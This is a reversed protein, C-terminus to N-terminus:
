ISEITNYRVSIFLILLFGGSGGLPQAAMALSKSSVRHTYNVPSFDAEKIKRM